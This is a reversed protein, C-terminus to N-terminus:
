YSLAKFYNESIDNSKRLTKLKRIKRKLDYKPSISNFGFIEKQKKNLIKFIKPGCKTFDTSPKIWWRKFHLLIGWRSKNNLNKGIQHWTQGLFFVISGQKAEVYKFKKNKKLYKKENQIRIGSLHSRPWIKTCGNDKMFEDLCFLVVVDSTNKLESSPLHSDIHVLAKYNNKVKISNSAMSNDLIFKDNFMKAVIANIFKNDILKLFHKPDRLVLDRIIVQGNISLEDKYKKNKKLSNELKKISKKFILCDKNKLFNEVICYGSKRLKKYVSNINPKM